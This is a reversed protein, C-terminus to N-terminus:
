EKYNQAYVDRAVGAQRAKAREAFAQGQTMEGGLTVLFPRKGTRSWVQAHM